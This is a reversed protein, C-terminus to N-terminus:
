KVELMYSRPCNSCMTQGRGRCRGIYGKVDSCERECRKNHEAIVGELAEIRETQAKIQTEAIREYKRWRQALVMIGGAVSRARTRPVGEAELTQFAREVDAGPAEASEIKNM